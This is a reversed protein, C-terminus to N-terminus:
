ARCAGRPAAAAVSRSLNGQRELRHDPRSRHVHHSRLDARRGAHQAVLVPDRPARRPRRGDARRPDRAPRGSRPRDDARRPAAPAAAQGARAAAGSQRARRAVAGSDEARSSPQLAAAARRRVAPDWGPYIQAVFRMHWDLTAAGYLRLDESVFGIDRKAAAQERPMVRGLVRVTGRDQRVMSMLIRITTSKGAGNPGVFGMIQGAELRLRVDKLQFFRYAKDVGDLEIVPETMM